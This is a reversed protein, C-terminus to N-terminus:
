RDGGVGGVGGVGGAGGVGGVGGVGGIDLCSEPTQSSTAPPRFLASRGSERTFM